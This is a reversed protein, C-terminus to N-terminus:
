QGQWGEVFALPPLPEVGVGPYKQLFLQLSMPLLARRIAEGIEQPSVVWFTGTSTPGLSGEIVHLDGMYPSTPGLLGGIAYLASKAREGCNCKEGHAKHTITGGSEQVIQRIVQVDQDPLIM